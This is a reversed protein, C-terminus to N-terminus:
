ENWLFSIFSYPFFFFDLTQFLKIKLILPGLENNWKVNKETNGCRQGPRCNRSFLFIVSKTMWHPLPSFWSWLFLALCISCSDQTQSPCLVEHINPNHIHVIWSVGFKKSNSFKCAKREKHTLTKSFPLSLSFSLKSFNM